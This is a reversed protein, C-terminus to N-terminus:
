LFQEEKERVVDYVNLFLNVLHRASHTPPPSPIHRGVGEELHHPYPPFIGPRSGGTQFHWEMSLFVLILIQRLVERGAPGHSNSPPVLEQFAAKVFM